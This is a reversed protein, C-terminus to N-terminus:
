GGLTVRWRDAPLVLELVEVPRGGADARVARVVLVVGSALGLHGAEDPTLMRATVEPRGAPGVPAVARPKRYVTRLHSPRGVEDLLETREWPIHTAPAVNLLTALATDAPITGTRTDGRGHPWPAGTGTLTRVRVPDAVYVGARQTSVVLGSTRLLGVAREIVGLRVGYQDALLRWSPLRAGPPFEGSAIRQRLDAAVRQYQPGTM